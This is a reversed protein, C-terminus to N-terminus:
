LRRASGAREEPLIGLAFLLWTSPLNALAGSEIGVPKHTRMPALAARSAHVQAEQPRAHSAATAVENLRTMREALKTEFRAFVQDLSRAAGNREYFVARNAEAAAPLLSAASRAGNEARAKLFQAAGGPGLFHALYIEVPQARRGLVGELREANGRAYEAGLDAAIRGDHRLDLLQQRTRADAVRLRGTHDTEIARALEGLGLRAGHDRMLGLWTQEIFQFLGAASSTTARATTDLGSEMDAQAVLFRFDVGSRRSAEALSRMVGHDARPQLPPLPGPM